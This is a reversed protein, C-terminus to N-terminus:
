VSKRFIGLLWIENFDPHSPASNNRAFLCVHRFQYERKVIKRFRVFVAAERVLLKLYSHPYVEHSVAGFSVDYTVSPYVERSVTNFLVNETVVLTFKM